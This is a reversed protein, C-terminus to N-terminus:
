NADQKRHGCFVANGDNIANVTIYDLMQDSNMSPSYRAALYATAYLLSSLQQFRQVELPIDEPKADEKTDNAALNSVKFLADGLKESVQEAMRIIQFELLEMDKIVQEPITKLHAECPECRM